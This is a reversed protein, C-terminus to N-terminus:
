DVNKAYIDKLTNTKSVLRKLMNKTNKLLMLMKDKSYLTIDVTVYVPLVTKITHTKPLSLTNCIKVVKPLLVAWEETSSEIMQCLKDIKRIQVLSYKSLRREVPLIENMILERVYEDLEDKVLKVEVPKQIVPTRQFKDWPAYEKEIQDFMKIFNRQLYLNDITIRLSKHRAKHTMFIYLVFINSAFTPQESEFGPIKTGDKLVVNCGVEYEYRTAVKILRLIDNVSKCASIDKRKFLKEKSDM